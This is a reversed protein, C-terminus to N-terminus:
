GGDYDNLSVAGQWVGRENGAVLVFPRVEINKICKGFKNIRSKKKRLHHKM